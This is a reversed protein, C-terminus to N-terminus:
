LHFLIDIVYKIIGCRWSRYIGIGLFIAGVITLIIGLTDSTGDQFAFYFCGIAIAIFALCSIEKKM